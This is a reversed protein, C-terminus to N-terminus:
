DYCSLKQLWLSNKIKHVLQPEVKYIDSMRVEVQDIYQTIEVIITLQTEDINEVIGYIQHM